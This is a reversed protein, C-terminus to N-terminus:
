RAPTPATENRARDDRRHHTGRRARHSTVLKAVAARGEESVNSSVDTLLAHVEKAVVRERERMDALAADLRAADFPEAALADRVDQRAERMGGFGARVKARHRAYAADLAAHDSEPPVRALTEARPMRVAGGFGRGHGHGHQWWGAALAAGLLLNLAISLLLAALLNAVCRRVQTM